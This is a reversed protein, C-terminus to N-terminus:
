CHSYITSGAAACGAPQQVGSGPRLAPQRQTTPFKSCYLCIAGPALAPSQLAPWHCSNRAAAFRGNSPPLLAAMQLRRCPPWEFAAALRGNSPPLLAALKLCAACVETESNRAAAEISAAQSAAEIIQQRLAAFLAAAAIKLRFVVTGQAAAGVGM